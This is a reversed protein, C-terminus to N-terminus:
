PVIKKQVYNQPTAGAAIFTILKRDTKGIPDYKITQFSMLMM